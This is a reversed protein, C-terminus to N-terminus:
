RSVTVEREYESLLVSITGDVDTRYLKDINSQIRKLTKDNPLGYSNDKSLSLIAVKAESQQLFELCSSGGSGHHAIMLIDSSLMEGYKDCLELENEKDIDGTFLIENNGYCFRYVLSNENEKKSTWDIHKTFIQLSASEFISLQQDSSICYVPINRHTAQKILAKGYENYSLRHPIYVSKVLYSDMIKGAYRLHDLDLHTFCIAEIESVQNRILTRQIEQSAFGSGGVDILVAKHFSSLVATNGQGVDVFDVRINERDLYSDIYYSSLLVAIIVFYIPVIWRHHNRHLFYYILVFAIVLLILAIWFTANAINITSFPLHALAETVKECYKVLPEAMHQLLFCLPSISFVILAALGVFFLVEIAPVVLINTVPAIPSIAQYILLMIPLTGIIASVSMAISNRLFRRIRSIISKSKPLPVFVKLITGTLLLIGLTATASLALSLNLIRYPNSLCSLVVALSLSTYPDAEKGVFVGIHFVSLMIAARICSPSFGTLAAFGWIVFLIILSRLKLNKSLVALIYWMIGCLFSLHMGSVALVHSVGSGKFNGYVYPDIASSDGLVIAQLMASSSLSFVKQYIDICKKRLNSFWVRPDTNTPEQLLKGDSTYLTIFEGQSLRFNDSIIDEGDTSSLVTGKLRVISGIPYVEADKASYVAVKGVPTITQKDTKITEPRIVYYLSNIGEVADEVVYGQVEVENGEMAKLPEITIQTFMFHYFLGIALPLFFLLSLKRFSAIPLIAIALFLAIASFYAVSESFFYGLIYALIVSLLIMM